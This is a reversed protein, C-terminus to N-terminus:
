IGMSKVWDIRISRDDGSYGSMVQHRLSRWSYRRRGGPPYHVQCIGNKLPLFFCLKENPFGPFVHSCLKWCRCCPIKWPWTPPAKVQKLRWASSGLHQSLGAASIFHLPSCTFEGLHDTTGTTGPGFPPRVYRSITPSKQKSPIIPHDISNLQVLGM